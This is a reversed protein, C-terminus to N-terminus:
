PLAHVLEHWREPEKQVPRGELTFWPACQTEHLDEAIRVDEATNVNVYWRGIEFLKVPNGDDVACQILDPLEQEHRLPSVPTRDIYELIQNRFVCNGTGMYNNAPRGPKEILRYISDDSPDFMVTYTKGIEDMESVQVVGCVAFLSEDYFFQVMGLPNPNCVIEDGLLLIFDDGGLAEEAQAMAGVLGNLEKQFVYRIRVNKYVVGFANIISEARYGVVILIEEAGSMVASELSYQILHRGHLIRMCKNCSEGEGQLRKGNGAALLLAKM